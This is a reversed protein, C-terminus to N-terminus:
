QDWNHVGKLVMLTCPALYGFIRVSTVYISSNFKLEFQVVVLCFVYTFSLSIPAFLRLAGFHAISQTLENYQVSVLVLVDPELACFPFIAFM